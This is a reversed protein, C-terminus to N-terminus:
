IISRVRIKIFGALWGALGIVCGPLAVVWALGRVCVQLALWGLRGPWWGLGVLCPGGGWGLWAGCQGLWWLGGTLAFYESREYKIMQGCARQARMHDNGSKFGDM